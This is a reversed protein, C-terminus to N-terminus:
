VFFVRKILTNKTTYRCSNFSILTRTSPISGLVKRTDTSHEVLQAICAYMNNIYDALVAIYMYIFLKM